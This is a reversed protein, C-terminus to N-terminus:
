YHKTQSGQAIMKGTKKDMIDVTAHALNKGAKACMTEIKLVDGLKAPRLYSVSLSVSVGPPKDKAMIAATSLADVLLATYGGHMGGGVNLHEEMVTAEFTCQGEGSSILKVGNLAKDYGKSTQLVNLFRWSLSRAASAM